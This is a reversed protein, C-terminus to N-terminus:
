GPKEFLAIIDKAKQRIKESGEVVVIGQGPQGYLLLEGDELLAMLPLTVLDEEGEILLALTAGPEARASRAIEPLEEMLKKDLTGPANSFVLPNGFRLALLEREKESIPKRESLYDFVAICPKLGLQELALVTHDGVAFIGCQGHGALEKGLEATSRLVNGFPNKLETRLSQPLVLCDSM